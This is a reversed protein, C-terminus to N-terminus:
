AMQWFVRAMLKDVLVNALPIQLEDSTAGNVGFLRLVAREIGVTTHPQILQFTDDAIKKALSHCRDVKEIDPKLKLM